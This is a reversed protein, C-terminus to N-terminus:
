ARGTSCTRPPSRMDAVEADENKVTESYVHNIAADMARVQQNWLVQGIPSPPRIRRRPLMQKIVVYAQKIRLPVKPDNSVWQSELEEFHKRNPDPTPLYLRGEAAM